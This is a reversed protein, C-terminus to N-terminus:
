MEGSELNASILDECFEIDSIHNKCIMAIIEDGGIDCQLRLIQGYVLYEYKVDTNAYYAECYEGYMGITLLQPFNYCSDKKRSEFDSTSFDNKYSSYKIMVCDDLDHFYVANGVYDKLYKM